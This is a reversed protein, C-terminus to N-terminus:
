ALSGMKWSALHGPNKQIERYAVNTVWRFSVGAAALLLIQVNVQEWLCYQRTIHDYPYHNIGGGLCLSNLLIIVKVNQNMWCDTSM